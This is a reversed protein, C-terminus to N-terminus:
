SDFNLRSFLRLKRLNGSFNIPKWVEYKSRGRVCFDSDSNLFKFQFDFCVVCPTVISLTTWDFRWGRRYSLERDGLIESFKLGNETDSDRDITRQQISTACRLSCQEFGASGSCCRVMFQYMSCDSKVDVKRNNSGKSELHESIMRDAGFRFSSRVHSFLQLAVERDSISSEFRGIWKEVHPFCSHSM